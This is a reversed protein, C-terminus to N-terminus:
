EERLKRWVGRVEERNPEFMKMLVRNLFARLKNQHIENGCRGSKGHLCRNIGQAQIIEETHFVM